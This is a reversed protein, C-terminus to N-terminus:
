EGQLVRTLEYVSRIGILQVDKPPSKLAKRNREPLVIKTFGLRSGERVRADCASITRCEGSLGVEGLFLVDNPISISKIASYLAAAIGLDTATEDFRIGGIVNLYVDKDFFPIGLRQELVALLLFMRNHDVGNALRKPSPFPSKAVLAQIEALIPRTGEMLCVPASGPVDIPSDEMLRRSPDPVECLGEDTMDFLGIESTAGYRNKITRIIRCSQTRDGEFYLVVDVMHELLKPGAIVGDKNVHGVLITAFESQKTLSILASTSQKVQAAGGPASSLTNDCLTQISDVLVLNYDGASAEALVKELDTECFLFLNDNEINLRAARQAIQRASEEGSVYLIKWDSLAKCLQLLLTSKGIGPEGSLLSVSGEVIGGGLARDLEGIGTARRFFREKDASAHSLPLAKAGTAGHHAASTRPTSPTSRVQEVLTNWEGCERCKGSWNDFVAGCSDCVFVSQSSKAM